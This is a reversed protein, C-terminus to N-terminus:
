RAGANSRTARDEGSAPPAARGPATTTTTTTTTTSATLDAGADQMAAVAARWVLMTSAHRRPYNQVPALDALEAFRTGGPAAGQKLLAELSDRGAIVEDLSAGIAHRAFVSASAQGLACAEIELGLAAIRGQPDLRVSVGVESGCVMSRKVARGVRADRAADDAAALPGVHPIDAALALLANPYLDDAMIPVYAKGGAGGLPGVDGAACCWWRKACPRKM